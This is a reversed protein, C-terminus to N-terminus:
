HVVILCFHVDVGTSGAYSNVRVTNPGVAPIGFASLIAMNNGIDASSVIYICGSTDFNFEINYEGTKSHQVKNGANPQIATGFGYELTGDRNVQAYGLIGAV